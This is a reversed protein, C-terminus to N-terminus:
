ARGDRLAYSFVIDCERNYGARDANLGRTTFDRCACTIAAVNTRIRHNAYISNVVYRICRVTSPLRDVVCADAGVVPRRGSSGRGSRPRRGRRRPATRTRPARSAAGAAVSDARPLRSPPTRTSSSSASSSSPRVTDVARARSASAATATTSAAHRADDAAAVEM